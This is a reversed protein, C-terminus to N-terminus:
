VLGSSLRDRWRTDYANSLSGPDTGEKNDTTPHPDADEEDASRPTGLGVKDEAPPPPPDPDLSAIGSRKDKVIEFVSAKLALAVFRTAM